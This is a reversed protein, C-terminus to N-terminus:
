GNSGEALDPTGAAPTSAEPMPGRGGGSGESSGLPIDSDVRRNPELDIAGGTVHALDGDHVQKTM